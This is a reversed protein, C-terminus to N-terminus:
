TCWEASRAILWISASADMPLGDQGNLEDAVALLHAAGTQSKAADRDAWALGISNVTATLAEIARDAGNVKRHHGVLGANPAVASTGEQNM